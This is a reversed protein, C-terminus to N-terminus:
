RKIRLIAPSKAKLIRLVSKISRSRIRQCDGRELPKVGDFDEKHVLWWRPPTEGREKIALYRRWLVLTIVAQDLKRIAIIM